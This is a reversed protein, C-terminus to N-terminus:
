ICNLGAGLVSLKKLSQFCERAEGLDCATTCLALVILGPEEDPFVDNL